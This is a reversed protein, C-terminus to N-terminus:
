DLDRERDFQDIQEETYDGRLILTIQWLQHTRKASLDLEDAVASHFCTNCPWGTHQLDCDTIKKLHLQLADVFAEKQSKPM